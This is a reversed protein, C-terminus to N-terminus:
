RRRMLVIAAVLLLSLWIIWNGFRAFPTDGNQPQVAHSLTAPQFQASSSVIHGRHDIFASPGSNASRVMPRALEYARMQAMQLRQHAALSDGFWADESINVLIAADRNFLRHEGAFADEYCISLGIQGEEGCTLPQHESWATFDSMPLQLYELVWNFLFRLPLYEGFPVLHRKRYLSREGGACVLM